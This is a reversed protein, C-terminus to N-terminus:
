RAGFLMANLVLKNLGPWMARGTPDETFSIVHGEGVGEDSLWVADSLAKETDDWVWGSLLKSFKPDSSFSVVNGGESKTKYFTSGSAPVSIRIKDSTGSYGFSLVSRGDLDAAFLAGPLDGPEKGDVKIADLKAYSTPGWSNGLSVLCGGASVWDKLKETVGGSTAEPFVICTWKSLDGRLAAQTIPTFPLHWVEHMLYWISGFTPRGDDGFVVAIKPSKIPIVNESGTSYRETDPYTTSLPVFRVHRKELIGSLLPELPVDNRARLIVFTSRGFGKGGISIPKPLVSVRVGENMLDFVALIDEQDTYNLLWGVSSPELRGKAPLPLDASSVTPASECWWGKLNHSYVLCWGTTDYFEPSDPRPNREGTKQRKRIENQAAVFEKEFDSGSELMAKALHGHEQAMDIVVSGSPFTATEMPQGAKWYDHADSQTLDKGLQKSEIGMSDLLKRLRRLERPDQSTVVVRQFKGAHVGSLSDERYKRYSDMLDDHHQASTRITNLATSTHKLLGDYLTLVSGDNRTKALAFGGDTEYTMGVAGCLATFTDLYGMAYFDYVDKIFYQWGNKDFMSGNSRGFVETWRKIRARDTNVNMSMPNPPFFYSPTQGHQDVYVQPSWKLFEAVEQRTEAQSMAVRDRNMDFRYHNTRGHIINPEKQEFSDRLSAGVSVSNSWVAFREHGDPNYVPNLLVVVKDLDARLGPDKSALLNYVTWMSAEFSAPENGHICENVWVFAPATRDGLRSRKRLEDLKAINAPSSIAYVRLARGEVSKGYVFKKIKSSANSALTELVRDQDSYTTQRTGATYGLISEPKPVSPDYPGFPYLTGTQLVILAVGALM